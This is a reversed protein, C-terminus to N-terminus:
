YLLHDKSIIQDKIQIMGQFIIKQPDLDLDCQQDQDKIQIMKCTIKGMETEIRRPAPTQQTSEFYVSKAITSLEKDAM